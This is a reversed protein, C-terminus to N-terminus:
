GFLATGMTRAAERGLTTTVHSYLDMTIAITSHGLAEQVVKPHTGNALAISAYSKRITETSSINGVPRTLQARDALQTMSQTM